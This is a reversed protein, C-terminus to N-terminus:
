DEKQSIKRVTETKPAPESKRLRFVGEYSASLFRGNALTRLRSLAEPDQSGAPIVFASASYLDRGLAYALRCCDRINAGSWGERAAFFKAASESAINPYKKAEIIGIEAREQANPMDFFWLGFSALRRQMEPTIADLRNCTTIIYAGGKGAIALVARTLARIQQESQGVLSGKASGLDGRLFPIGYKASIARAIFTKGNGPPGLFMSGPFQNDEITTLLEQAQDQSTGSTDGHSTSSGALVKEIEDIFFIVRPRMPGAFLDNAFALWQEAGGITANELPKEMTLGKPLMARKREWLEPISVTKDPQLSLAAAQEISFAALGRMADIAHEVTADDAAIKNETYLTTLTAKIEDATPFAEDLILIDQNLEAPLRFDPGLLVITRRTSKFADRLNMLAQIAPPEDIFRHGNEVLVCSREDLKLAETMAFVFNTLGMEAGEGGLSQILATLTDTGKDNLGSFGRIIDWLILPSKGNLGERLQKVTNPQDATTIAILPVGVNRVRKLENAIM